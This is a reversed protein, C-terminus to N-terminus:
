GVVEVLRNSGDVGGSDSARSLSLEMLALRGCALDSGSSSVRVPEQQQAAVVGERRSPPLVAGRLADLHLQSPQQGAGGEGVGRPFPGPEVLEDGQAAIGSVLRNFFVMSVQHGAMAMNMRVRAVLALVSAAFTVMLFM